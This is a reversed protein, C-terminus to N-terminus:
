AGVTTLQQGDWRHQYQAIGREHPSRLAEYIALQPVTSHTSCLRESTIIFDLDLDVLLGFLLPHTRVDIKPFADDLLVFRPAWPAAGALSEFHAAAAAFLPLYCLVKQEGQSLATKRQLDSWSGAEPRFYQVTFAHWQRYDLAKALHEAYSEEPAEARSVEILRHLVERLETREDALLAGMPQAPLSVARGAERPIDDRLRWRLRVRIGQSTTVDHLQANMAAVLEDAKVRVSRLADGLQGLVHEEFLRRERESLLERDRAVSVTLRAALDVLPLDGSDDRGIAVLVGDEDSFRPENVAADGSLLAAMGALVANHARSAEDASVGLRQAM